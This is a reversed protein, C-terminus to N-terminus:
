LPRRREAALAGALTAYRDLSREWSWLRAARAAITRRAADDPIAAASAALARHWATLDASGGTVPLGRVAGAFEPCGAATEAGVLAPLGCALAEQLVLPFGEGFSPLVLYDAARYWAALEAPPLRGVVRVNAAGGAAPDLPGAGAFVFTSQPLRAALRRLLPIGKKAVFRGVFLFVPGSGLGLAARAPPARSGDRPAFTGTDVGNPVVEATAGLAPSRALFWARVPESVFVVRTARAMAWRTATANAARVLGHLLLNRYPVDGIHQVLLVPTGAGRAAAIAVLNAAYLTDHVVLVDHARVARRLEWLAAPSWLPCPIGTRREIGNWAPMALLVLGPVAPGPPDVGAAMWTVALGRAALGAAVRAAVAEIGGGHAAYYHSLMLVRVM